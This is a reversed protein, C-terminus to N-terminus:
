GARAPDVRPDRRRVDARADAGEKRETSSSVPSRSPGEPAHWRYREGPLVRDILPVVPSWAALSWLLGNPRFLRFQVYAAGLAVLTGFVIRGTRSDPTTRPDSIMFFAFLVLASNQLRHMPIAAPEGLWASRGAVLVAYTALFALTVDARSARTVVLGGASALLFALFVDSGWQGPSVWVQGTVLLMAVLGFNSPNFVHKGNLRIIFKSAITIAAACAALGVFNTRLLLCLSLCSILASRPDFPGGGTLRTGVYQTLLGATLIAGIHASPVDFDLGWLGYIALASLTAIQYWRPDLGSAPRRPLRSCADPLSLSTSVV